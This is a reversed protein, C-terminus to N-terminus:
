RGPDGDLVGRLRAPRPESVLVRAGFRRRLEDAVPERIPNNRIDIMLEPGAELAKILAPVAADGIENHSLDLFTWGHAAARRALAVAGADGIRNYSVGLERMAPWNAARAIAAAGGDGLRNGGLALAGLATLSRSAALALAGRDTLRVDRLGLSRLGEAGDLGAIAKAGDDGLPNRTLNLEALGEVVGSAALRRTGDADLQCFGLDLSELGPGSVLPGELLIPNGSLRLRRLGSPRDPGILTALGAGDVGCQVLNLEALAPPSCQAIMGAIAGGQQGGSLHFARLRGSLVPRLIEASIEPALANALHLSELPGTALAASLRAAAGSELRTRVLELGRLSALSPLAALGRGAIVVPAPGGDIRLWELRASAPGSLLKSWANEPLRVPQRLTLARLEGLHRSQLWARAVQQHPCVLALRRAFGIEPAGAWDMAARSRDDPSPNSRVALTHLPAVQSARVLWGRASEDPPSSPLTLRTPLGGEWGWEADRVGHDAPLIAAWSRAAEPALADRREALAGHRPHWSSLHELELSLRVMEARSREGREELWDGYIWAPSSDGVAAERIAEFFPAHDDM